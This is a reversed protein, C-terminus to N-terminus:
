KSRGIEVEFIEMKDHIFWPSDKALEVAQDMDKAQIFYFGMLGEKTEDCPADTVKLEGRSETLLKTPKSAIKGTAKLNPELKGMWKTYKQNLANWDAATKTNWNKHQGNFTFLFLM